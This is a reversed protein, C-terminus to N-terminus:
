LLKHGYEYFYGLVFVVLGCGIALPVTTHDRGLGHAVLLEALVHRLVIGDIAFIDAETYGVLQLVTHEFLQQFTLLDLEAFETHEVETDFAGTGVLFVVEVEAGVDVTQEEAEGGTAGIDVVERGLHQLLLGREHVDFVEHLRLGLRRAGSRRFRPVVSGRIRVRFWSGHGRCRCRQRCRHEATLGLESVASLYSDRTGISCGDM